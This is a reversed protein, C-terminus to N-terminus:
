AKLNACAPLSVYFFFESFCAKEYSEIALPNNVIKFHSIQLEAYCTKQKRSRLNAFLVTFHSYCRQHLKYDKIGCM